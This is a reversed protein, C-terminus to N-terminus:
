IFIEPYDNQIAEITTLGTSKIFTVPHNYSFSFSYSRGSLLAIATVGYRGIYTTIFEFNNTKFIDSIALKTLRVKM